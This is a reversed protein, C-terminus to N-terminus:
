YLPWPYVDHHHDDVIRVKQSEVNDVTIKGRVLSDLLYTVILSHYRSTDSTDVCKLSESLGEIYNDLIAILSDM